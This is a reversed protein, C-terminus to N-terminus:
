TPNIYEWYQIPTLPSTGVRIGTLDLIKYTYNKKNLQVRYYLYATPDFSNQEFTPISTPVQNLFRTIVGDRANFFKASLFFSKIKVVDDNKLWYFFYGSSKDDMDLHFTPVLVRRITDYVTVVNGNVVNTIPADPENMGLTTWDVNTAGNYDCDLDISWLDFREGRIPSFLSSMYFKQKPKDLKDYFDLKFFSKNLDSTNAAIEENTYGQFNYGWPGSALPLTGPPPNTAWTVNISDYFNFEYYIDPSADSGDDLPAHRYRTIEYDKTPNILKNVVDDEYTKILDERGAEDITTGFGLSVNLDKGDLKFTYKNVVM